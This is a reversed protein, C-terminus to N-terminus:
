RAPELSPSGPPPQLMPKLEPYEDSMGQLVTLAAKQQMQTGLEETEKVIQPLAKLTRQGLPSEYFQVLAQVDEVSLNRDYIPVMATSVASPPATAALKQNFATMFSTVKDPAIAHSVGAQVQNSIYADINEGLKSAQTIEMLHRIAAEKAPDIKAPAKPAPSPAPAAAPSPAPVGPQHPAPKPAPAPTSTQAHAAGTFLLFMAILATKRMMFNTKRSEQEPTKSWGTSRDMTDFSRPLHL